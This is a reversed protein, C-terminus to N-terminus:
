RMWWETICEVYRHEGQLIEAVIWEQMAGMGKDAPGSFKCLGRHLFVLRSLTHKSWILQDAERSHLISARHLVVVRPCMSLAHAIHRRGSGKVDPPNLIALDFAYEENEWKLFDECYDPHLDPDIDMPVIMRCHSRCANVFVGSGCSPELVCDGKRVNAWEVIRKALAPPTWYQGLDKAICALELQIIDTVEGAKKLM